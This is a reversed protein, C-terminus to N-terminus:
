FIGYIMGMEKREMAAGACELRAFSRSFFLHSLRKPTNVLLRRALLSLSMLLFIFSHLYAM